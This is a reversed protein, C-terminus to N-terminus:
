FGEQNTSDPFETYPPPNHHTSGYSMPQQAAVLQEITPTQTRERIAVNGNHNRPSPSHTVRRYEQSEVDLVVYQVPYKAIIYFSHIVGPLYGLFCLAINILSEASCLGCKVWVPFPPFVLAILVLICDCCCCCSM